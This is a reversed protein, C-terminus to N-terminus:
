RDTALENKKQGTSRGSQLNLFIMFLITIAEAHLIATKYVEFESEAYWCGYPFGIHKEHNRLGECSIFNCSYFNLWRATMIKTKSAAKKQYNGLIIFNCWSGGVSSCRFNKCLTIVRHKVSFCSSCDKAAASYWCICLNGCFLALAAFINSACSFCCKSRWCSFTQEGASAWLRKDSGTRSQRKPTGPAPLLVHMLNSCRKKLSTICQSLPTCNWVKAEWFVIAARTPPAVTCLHPVMGMQLSFAMSFICPPPFFSAVM